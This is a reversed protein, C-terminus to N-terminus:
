ENKMKYLGPLPELAPFAKKESQKVKHSAPDSQYNDM